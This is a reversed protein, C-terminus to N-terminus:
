KGKSKNQAAKKGEGSTLMNGPFVSCRGSWVCLGGWEGKKPPGKGRRKLKFLDSFRTYESAVEIWGSPNQGEGSRSLGPKNKREFESWGPAVTENLQYPVDSNTEWGAYKNMGFPQNLPRMKQLPSFYAQSPPGRLRRRLYKQGARENTLVPLTNFIPARLQVLLDRIAPPPMAHPLHLNPSNTTTTTLFTPRHYPFNFVRCQHPPHFRFAMRRKSENLTHVVFEQFSAQEVTPYSHIHPYSDYEYLRHHYLSEYLAGMGLIRVYVASALDHEGM